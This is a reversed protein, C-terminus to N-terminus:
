AGDSKENLVFCQLLGIQEYGLLPYLKSGASSAGLVSWDVGYLVDERLMASMLARGLGQRRYEAKVFLNSVWNCHGETRISRVYGVPKAGDWAAYLRVEADDIALHEPLIQRSRASQAVRAAGDRDKVRHVPLPSAFQSAQYPQVAFLPERVLLRLGASKYAEKVAEHDADNPNIVSVFCRGRPLSRIAAVAFEPETGHVVIECARPAGKSRPADRLVILSGERKAVYPHTFSKGIGIGRVFVEVANEITVTHNYPCLRLSAFPLSAAPM